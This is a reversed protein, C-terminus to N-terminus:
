FILSKTLIICYVPAENWSPWLKKVYRFLTALLTSPLFVQLELEYQKKDNKMKTKNLLVDKTLAAVERM